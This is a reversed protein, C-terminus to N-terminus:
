DEPKLISPLQRDISVNFLQDNEDSSNPNTQPEFELSFGDSFVIQSTEESLATATDPNRGSKIIHPKESDELKFVEHGIAARIARSSMNMLAIRRERQEIEQSLINLEYSVEKQKDAPLNEDAASLELAELIANHWSQTASLEKVQMDLHGAVTAYDRTREKAPTKM